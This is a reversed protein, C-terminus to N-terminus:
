EDDDVELDMDYRSELVSQEYELKEDIKMQEQIYNEMAEERIKEEKENM